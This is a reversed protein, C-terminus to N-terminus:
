QKNRKHIELLGKLILHEDVCDIQINQAYLEALGGTAIIYPQVNMELMIKDLIKEVMGVYGWYIGSQMASRTDHGIAHEPQAISIQPLKAARDTLAQVSLKIGPAIVGGCYINDKIVDFTTATGFDIVIAPAKYESLVAATNALRDAGAESPNPLAIDIQATQATM